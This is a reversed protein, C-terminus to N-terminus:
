GNKEGERALIADAKWLELAEIYGFSRKGILSRLTRLAEVLERRDVKMRAAHARLADIYAIWDDGNAMGNARTETIWTPEEPMEAQQYKALEVELQRSLKAMNEYESARYPTPADSPPNSKIANDLADTRPTKVESM